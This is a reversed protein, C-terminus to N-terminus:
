SVCLTKQPVAILWPRETAITQTATSLEAPTQQSATDSEKQVPSSVSKDSSACGSLFLVAILTLSAFAIKQKMKKNKTNVSDLIVDIQKILWFFRLPTSWAFFVM